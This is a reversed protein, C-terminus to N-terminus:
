FSPENSYIKTHSVVKLTKHVDREIVFDDKVNNLPFIMELSAFNRFNMIWLDTEIQLSIRGM